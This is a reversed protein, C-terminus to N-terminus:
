YDTECFLPKLSLLLACRNTQKCALLYLGTLSVRQVRQLDAHDFVSGGDLAGLIRARTFCVNGDPSGETQGWEDDPSIAYYACSIAFILNLLALWKKSLDSYDKMGRVYDWQELVTTKHVIPFIPHVSEFYFALLKDAHEKPPLAFADLGSTSLPM